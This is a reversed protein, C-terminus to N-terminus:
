QRICVGNAVRSPCARQVIPSSLGMSPRQSGPVEDYSTGLPPAASCTTHMGTHGKSPRKLLATQCPTTETRAHAETRPPVTAVARKTHGSPTALLPGSATARTLTSRRLFPIMCRLDDRSAFERCRTTRKSSCPSAPPPPPARPPPALLLPAPLPAPLSLPRPAEASFHMGPRRDTPDVATLPSRKRKATPSSTAPRGHVASTSRTSAARKEPM